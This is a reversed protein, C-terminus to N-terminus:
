VMLDWFVNETEKNGLDKTIYHMWGSDAIKTEFQRDLNQVCTIAKHIHRNMEKLRRTEIGGIALHLHIRKFSKEGECVVIYNLTKNHRKASNKFVEKNLQKIFHQATNKADNTTIQRKYTGLQTNETITQKLTLTCAISYRDHLSRLWTRTDAKLKAVNSDSYATKLRITQLDM